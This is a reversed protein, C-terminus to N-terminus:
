LGALGNPTGLGTVPDVGAPPIDHFATPHAYPWWTGPFTGGALVSAAAVLPAGVSTGGVVRWGGAVAAFSAVGTQPDAVASVDVAARTACSSAQQWRPKPEYASCGRGGYAWASESWAAGAKTITTGGVALVGPSTAPYSPQPQDGASATIAVGAHTYHVDEGTEAQWEAAYYSNSVARAGLSTATDVATGLDDLSASTAEVLLIACQPCIASVVDLDLAIEQSWGANPAPYATGGRQDVKRFCGSASTCPPLGFTARYVALDSEAAPDDYADVIAITGSGSASAGALGYASQLDSPHLGPVL